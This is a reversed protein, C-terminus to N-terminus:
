LELGAGPKAGDRDTGNRVTIHPRILCEGVSRRGELQEFLMAVARESVESPMPDVNTVPLRLSSALADVYVAVMPIDEDAKIGLELCLQLVENLAQPRRVALGGRCEVLGRLVDSAEWVGRWGMEVPAFVRCDMGFSRAVVCSEDAFIRCFAYRDLTDGGDGLVVLQRVGREALYGVSLQAISRYDVDVCSLGCSDDATGILVTPIDLERIEALRADHWEIDFVLVGDLVGQRVMKQLGGVGEDAPILMVNYGHRHVERMITVLFPHLEDLQTNESISVMVGVVGARGGALSRASANPVYGLEDMVKRVRKKTAESIPRSGSMVYSVTAQSVGARKAVDKATVMGSVVEM